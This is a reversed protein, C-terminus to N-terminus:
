VRTYREDKHKVLQGRSIKLSTMLGKIIISKPVLDQAIVMEMEQTDLEEFKIKSFLDDIQDQTLLSSPQLQSDTISLPLTTFSTNSGTGSLVQLAEDSMMSDMSDLRSESSQIPLSFSVNRKWDSASKSLLKSARATTSEYLSHGTSTTAPSTSTNSRGFVNSQQQHHPNHLILSNYRSQNKVYRAVLTYLRFESDISLSPHGILGSFLNFPLYSLDLNM